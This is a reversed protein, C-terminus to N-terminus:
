DTLQDIWLDLEKRDIFVRSGQRKIPIKAASILHYTAQKSRGIYEAAEEVTMLRKQLGGNASLQAIVRSAVASALSDVFQDTFM